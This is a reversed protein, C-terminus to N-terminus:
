TASKGLCYHSREVYGKAFLLGRASHFAFNYAAIEAMENEGIERNKEASRIFKEAIKFSNEVRDRATQDRKILGEQLCRELNM